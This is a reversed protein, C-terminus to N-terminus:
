PNNVIASWSMGLKEIQARPASKAANMPMSLIGPHATDSGFENPIIWKVGVEAAATILKGAA